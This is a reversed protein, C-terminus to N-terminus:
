PTRSKFVWFESLLFNSIMGLGIGLLNSLLYPWNLFHTLGLLTIYNIFGGLAASAYYRILRHFYTYHRTARNEKWTFLDNWTFNNFIAIAIAIPSALSLPVHAEKFLLWLFFNNVVLGTTGIIGFKIIRKLRSFNIPEM